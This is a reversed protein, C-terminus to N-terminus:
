QPIYLRRHEGTNFAIPGHNQVEICNVVHAGYAAYLEIIEGAGGVATGSDYLDLAVRNSVSPPWIIEAPLRVKFNLEQRDEEPWEWSPWIKRKPQPSGEVSLWLNMNMRSTKHNIRIIATPVPRPPIVEWIEAAKIDGINGAKQQNIDSFTLTGFGTRNAYNASDVYTFVQKTEDYGIIAVLHQGATLRIPNKKDLEARFTQSNIGINTPKGKIRYNHAENCGEVTHGGIWRGVPITPETGETSNGFSGHFVWAEDSIKHYRGDPTQYLFSGDPQKQWLDRRRHLMLQLNMSMNPCNPCSLENLIDWVACLAYGWCGDGGQTRVFRLYPALNVPM